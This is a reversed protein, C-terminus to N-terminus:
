EVSRLRRTQISGSLSRPSESFAESTVFAIWRCFTCIAEPATPACGLGDLLGTFKGMMTLPWIVAGSAKPAITSRALGSPEFTRTRSM